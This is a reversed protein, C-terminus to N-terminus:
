PASGTAEAIAADLEALLWSAALSARCFERAKELSDLLKPAAAILQGQSALYVTAIHAGNEGVIFTSGMSAKFEARWPTHKTANMM